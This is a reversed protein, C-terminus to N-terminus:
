GALLKTLLAGAAAAGTGLLLPSVWGMAARAGQVTAQWLELKRVRGNTAKAEALMDDLKEDQADLRRLIERAADNHM